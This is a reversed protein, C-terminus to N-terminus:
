GRRCSLLAREHQGTEPCPPHGTEILAAKSKGWCLFAMYGHQKPLAGLRAQALQPRSLQGMAGALRASLTRVLATTLLVLTAELHLTHAPVLGLAPHPAGLPSLQLTSGHGGLGSVPCSLRCWPPLRPSGETCRGGGRPERHLLLM